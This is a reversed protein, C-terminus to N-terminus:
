HIINLGTPLAVLLKVLSYTENEM